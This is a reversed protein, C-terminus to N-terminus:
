ETSSLFMRQEAQKPIFSFNANETSDHKTITQGIIKEEDVPHSWKQFISWRSTCFKQKQCCFIDQTM